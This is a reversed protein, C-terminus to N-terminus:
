DVSSHDTTNAKNPEGGKKNSPKFWMIQFIIGFVLAIGVFCLYASGAGVIASKTEFGFKLKCANFLCWIYILHVPFLFVLTWEGFRIMPIVIASLVLVPCVAYLLAYLQDDFSVTAVNGVKAVAWQQINIIIGIYVAALILLMKPSLWDPLSRNGRSVFAQITFYSIAVTFIFTMGPPCIRGTNSLGFVVSPDFVLKWLTGLYVAVNLLLFDILETLDNM